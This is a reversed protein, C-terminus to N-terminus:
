GYSGSIKRGVFWFCRALLLLDIVTGYSGLIGFREVSAQARGLIMWESNDGGFWMGLWTSIFAGIGALVTIMFLTLVVNGLFTRTKGIPQMEHKSVLAKKVSKKDVFFLVAALVPLILPLYDVIGYTGTRYKWYFIGLRLIAVIVLL